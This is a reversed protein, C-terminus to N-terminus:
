ELHITLDNIREDDEEITNRAIALELKLNNVERDDHALISSRPSNPAGLVRSALQRPCFGYIRGKSPGNIAGIWSNPNFEPQDDRIIGYKSM